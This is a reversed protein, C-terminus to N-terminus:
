SKPLRMRDMQQCAMQHHFPNRLYSFKKSQKLTDFINDIDETGRKKENVAAIPIAPKVAKVKAKVTTSKM